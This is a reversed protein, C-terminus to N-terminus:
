QICEERDSKEALLMLTNEDPTMGRKRVYDMTSQAAMLVARDLDERAAARMKDLGDFARRNPEIFDALYIIKQLKTMGPRGTTHWRIAQLVEPDEVGYERQALVVGAAAHMLARSKDPIHKEKALAKMERDPLCRACDHLLAAVRAKEVDEGYRRALEAATQVVGLTHRYREKTLAARLKPMMPDEYLRRKKIYRAVSPGVMPELPLDFRAAQRVDTSSVDLGEGAVMRVSLGYRKNLHDAYEAARARDVSPRSVCAVADLLAAVRAFDRWSELLLLTDAGVIYTYACDPRRARLETLTDVTYTVGRRAIEVDSAMFGQRGEIALKVMNLRDAADALEGKHPPDGDPIFLIEDLHLQAMTSEAMQVHGLHIPDFTGGMIGCARM